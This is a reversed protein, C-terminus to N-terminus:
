YDSQQRIRFVLDGAAISFQDGSKVVYPRIFQGTAVMRYEPCPLPIYANCQSYAWHTVDPWDATAQWTYVLVNTRILEFPDASAVTIPGFPDLLASYTEYGGLTPLVNEPATDRGPNAYCLALQFDNPLLEGPFFVKKMASESSGSSPM